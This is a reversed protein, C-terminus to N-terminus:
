FSKRARIKGRAETSTYQRQRRTCFHCCPKRAPQPTLSRTTTLSSTNASLSTAPPPLPPLQTTPSPSPHTPCLRPRRQNPHQPRRSTEHWHTNQSATNSPNSNGDRDDCGESADDSRELLGKSFIRAYDRRETVQIEANPQQPRNLALKPPTHFHPIESTIFVISLNNQNLQAPKIILIRQSM